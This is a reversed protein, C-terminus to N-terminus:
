NGMDASKLYECIKMDVTNAQKDHQNEEKPFAFFDNEHDRIKPSQLPEKQPIEITLARCQAALTMKITDKRTEDRLWRLKFKPLTVAALLAEDSELITSFRTKIAATLSGQCLLERCGDPAKQYLLNEACFVPSNGALLGFGKGRRLWSPQSRVTFGDADQRLPGLSPTTLESLAM